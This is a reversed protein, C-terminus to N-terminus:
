SKLEKRVIAKFSKNISYGEANNGIVIGLEIWTGLGVSIRSYNMDYKGKRAEKGLEPITAKEGVKCLLELSKKRTDVFKGRGKVNKEIVRLCDKFYKMKLTEYTQKEGKLKLDIDVLSLKGKEHCRLLWRCFELAPNSYRKRRKDKDEKVEFMVDRILEHIPIIKIIHNLEKSLKGEIEEKDDCYGPIVYWIEDLRNLNWKKNNPSKKFYKWHTIIKRFEKRFGLRDGCFNFYQDPSGWAKCEIVLTTGKQLHFGLVDIDSHGIELKFPVRTETFYGKFKAYEEAISEIAMAEGM